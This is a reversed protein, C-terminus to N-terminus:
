ILEFLKLIIYTTLKLRYMLNKIKMTKQKFNPNNILLKSCVQLEVSEAKNKKKIQKKSKNKVLRDDNPKEM